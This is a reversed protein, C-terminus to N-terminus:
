PITSVADVALDPVGMTGGTFLEVAPNSDSVPNIGDAGAPDTADPVKISGDRVGSYYKVAEQYFAAYPASVGKDTIIAMNLNPTSNILQWAALNLVHRKAGPPVTDATVSLPTMSGVEINARLEAVCQAVIEDRRNQQELDVTQTPPLDDGLNENAKNVLLSNIVKTLESGTVTQWNTAM